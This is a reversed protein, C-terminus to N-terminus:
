SGFRDSVESGLQGAPRCSYLMETTEVLLIIACPRFTRVISLYGANVLLVCVIHSQKNM